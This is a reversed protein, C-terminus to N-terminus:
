IKKKLCFVAYSISVHSSNLRTSKRDRLLTRANQHNHGGPILFLSDSRRNSVKPGLSWPNVQDDNIIARCITRGLYSLFFTTYPFLIFYSLRSLDLLFVFFVCFSLLFYF